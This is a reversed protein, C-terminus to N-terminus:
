ELSALWMALARLEVGALGTFSPMLNEPKLHQADAIWGALTGANNPFAGAAISLRGGVHTLDPGITGAAATGRVAHCAGCGSADFLRAGDALLPTAPPQAPRDQFEFWRAFAEPPEAVVYFAM